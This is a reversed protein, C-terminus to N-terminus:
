SPKEPQKLRRSFEYALCGTAKYIDEGKRCLGAFNCWENVVDWYGELLVLGVIETYRETSVVTARPEGERQEFTKRTARAVGLAQIPTTTLFASGDAADDAWVALYDDTLTIQRVSYTTVDWRRRKTDTSNRNSM